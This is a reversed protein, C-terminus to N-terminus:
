QLKEGTEAHLFNNLFRWAPIAVAKEGDYQLFYCLEPADAQIGLAAFAVIAQAEDLPTIEEGLAEYRCWAGDMRLLGGDDWLFVVRNTEPWKKWDHARDGTMVDYDAPQISSSWYVNRGNLRQLFAVSYCDRYGPVRGYATISQLAYEGLDFAAMIAEAKAQADAATLTCEAVGNPWVNKSGNYTDLGNPFSAGVCGFCAQVEYTYYDCMPPGDTNPLDFFIQGDERIEKQVDSVRDGFTIQLLANESINAPLVTYSTDALASSCLLCLLVVLALIRKM